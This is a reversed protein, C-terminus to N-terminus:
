QFLDGALLPTETLVRPDKPDLQVVFFLPETALEPAEDSSIGEFYIIAFKEKVDKASNVAPYFSHTSTGNALTTTSNVSSLTHEVETTPDQASYAYLRQAMVSANNASQSLAPHSAVVSVMYTSGVLQVESISIGAKNTAGSAPTYDQYDKMIDEASPGCGCLAGALLVMALLLSLKKM